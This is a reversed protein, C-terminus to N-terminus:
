VVHQRWQGSRFGNIIRSLQEANGNLQLQGAQLFANFGELRSALAPSIEVFGMSWDAFSRKVVTERKIVICRHHRPDKAIKDYLPTVVSEEGELVQLFSGRHYLLLGSVGLGQNNGRAKTLLETLEKPSFPHRGASAYVLETM